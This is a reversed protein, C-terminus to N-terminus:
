KTLIGLGRLDSIVEDTFILAGDDNLHFPDMFYYPNESLKEDFSYDLWKVEPYKKNLDDKFRQIVELLDEQTPYLDLFTKTIPTSVVVPILNNQRCIEIMDFVLNENYLLGKEGARPFPEFCRKFESKSIEVQKEQSNESFRKINQEPNEEKSEKKNKFYSSYYSWITKFPHSASVVPFFKLKLYKSVTCGPINKYDLFQYYKKEVNSVTVESPISDYEIMGVIIMVVANPSLKNKCQVLVSKDLELYQQLLAMNFGNLEPYNKYDFSFKGLSSGLNAIQINEPMNKFKQIDSDGQSYESAIYLGNIVLFPFLVVVVAIFFKLFKNM